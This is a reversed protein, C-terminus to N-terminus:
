STVEPGRRISIEAGIPAFGSSLFARLSAANGPAVQAFVPTGETILSRGIAVLRRGHGVGHDSSPLLEVSM